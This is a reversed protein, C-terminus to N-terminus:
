SCALSASPRGRPVILPVVRAECGDSCQRRRAELCADMHRQCGDRGGGPHVSNLSSPMADVRRHGAQICLLHFDSACSRRCSWVADTRRVAELCILCVTAGSQCSLLHERVRRLSDEYADDEKGAGAHSWRAERHCAQLRM